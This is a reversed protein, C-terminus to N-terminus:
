TSHFVQIDQSAIYVYLVKTTSKLYKKRRYPITESAIQFETLDCQDVVINLSTSDTPKQIIFGIQFPCIQKIYIHCLIDHYHSVSIHSTKCTVLPSAAM